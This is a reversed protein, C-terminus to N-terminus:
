LIWHNRQVTRFRGWPDPLGHEQGLDDGLRGHIHTNAPGALHRLDEDAHPRPTPPVHRALCDAQHLSRGPGHPLVLRGDELLPDEGVRRGDPDQGSRPAADYPSSISGTSGVHSATGSFPNPGM